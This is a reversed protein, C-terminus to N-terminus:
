GEVVPQAEGSAEAAGVRRAGAYIAVGLLNAGALVALIKAAFVQWSAVDIIPFISLVSYLLSVAFGAAAAARLWLPPREPLRSAAVLPIAFLALYTFAYFIGAANELLQFAEQIGVGAQGALSLLLTLAAVFLISNRPTRFRPDLRTFWKPLLGDWGAVMPLRTNGAFILTVSGLQRLVLLFILLPVIMRAFGLGQFGLSLTQPIPSVLDIRDPPVLALVSSTGLIFMLAIVPVAILVSRSITRAPSRCEGALIAVYEFGSFAGLAMKGFINLSLPTARPVSAALPHYAPITGRRLAVFPIAVLAAFTLIQAVGGIDQVWKGVRLGLLAVLTIGCIMAISVAGTYWWAGTLAAFGPGLLYSLNTAVVVAFTAMILITYAWLNWAVLFGAFKGLALTAWQYLGGELPLLRNLYIVVAAQPLYYLAIALLWFVLHATGLKAATGVWGSGVVYLIQILVLDALRLEKRFAASRAEVEGIRAAAADSAATVTESM